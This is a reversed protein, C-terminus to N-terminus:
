RYSLACFSCCFHQCTCHHMCCLAASPAAGHKISAAMDEFDLCLALHVVCVEKFQIYAKEAEPKYLGPALYRNM